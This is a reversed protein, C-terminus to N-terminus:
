EVCFLIRVPNSQVPSSHVSEVPGSCRLASKRMLFTESFWKGNKLVDSCFSFKFTGSSSRWETNDRVAVIIGIFCVKVKLNYKSEQPDFIFIIIRYRSCLETSCLRRIHIWNMDIGESSTKHNSHVGWTFTCSSSFKAIISSKCGHRLEYGLLQM